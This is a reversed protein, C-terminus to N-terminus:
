VKQILYLSNKELLYIPNISNYKKMVDIKGYAVQDNVANDGYDYGFPIFITNDKLNFIFKSQFLCDIRLSIVCDYNINSKNVYDELLVFVRNKNIFHCTMNHMLHDKIEPRRGPYKGLNYDYYIPDNIYSIPKYLKIFDNLLSQSSNDSSLFFDIVHEDGIKEIVNNYHDVCKNLRGFILVAIHMYLLTFYIITEAHIIDDRVSVISTMISKNLLGLHHNAKATCSKFLAYIYIFELPM